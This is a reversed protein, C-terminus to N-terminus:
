FSWKSEHTLSRETHPFVKNHLVQVDKKLLNLEQRLTIIQSHSDALLAVAVAFLGWVMISIILGRM